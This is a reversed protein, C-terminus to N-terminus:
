NSKTWKVKELYDMWNKEQNVGLDHLTKWSYIGSSHGDDFIPKIAYNGVSEIAVINVDQKGLVLKENGIGHGRVEASPSFVRLYECSFVFREGSPFEVELTKSQQHLTIQKPTLFDLTM